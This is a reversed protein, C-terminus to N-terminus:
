EEESEGLCRNLIWSEAIKLLGLGTSLFEKTRVKIIPEQLPGSESEFRSTVIIADHCRKFIEGGLDEISVLSLDTKEQSIHRLM